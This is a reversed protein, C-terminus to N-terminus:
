TTRIPREWFEETQAWATAVTALRTETADALAETLSATLRVVLREGDDRDAIM